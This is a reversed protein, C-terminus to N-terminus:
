KGQNTPNKQPPLLGSTLHWHSIDIELTKSSKGCLSAVVTTILRNRNVGQATFIDVMGYIWRM